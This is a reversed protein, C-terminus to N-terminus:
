SQKFVYEPAWREKASPQIKDSHCPIIYSNWLIPSLSVRKPMNLTGAGYYISQHLVMAKNLHKAATLHEAQRSFIDQHLKLAKKPHKVVILREAQRSIFLAGLQLSVSSCPMSTVDVCIALCRSQRSVLPLLLYVVSDCANIPIPREVDHIWQVIRFWPTCNM